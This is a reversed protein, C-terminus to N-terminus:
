RLLNRILAVVVPVAVGNGIQKYAVADQKPLVFDERIGQLRACERPTLQRLGQATKISPTSFTAITPSIGLISYIKDQQRPLGSITDGYLIADTKIKYQKKTIKKLNDNYITTIAEVRSHGVALRHNAKSPKKLLLKRNKWLNSLLYKTDVIDDLIDELVLTRPMSEPFLINQSIDSRIGVFFVRKRQQPVGFDAADIVKYRVNYGCNELCTMITDVCSSGDKNLMSLLGVVNEFIFYKPQKIRLIKALELFLNDREETSDITKNNKNFWKGNRSFPQCPFGGFLVDHEPISETDITRIDGLCETKFNLEFTKAANKDIEIACVCEADPFVQEIALSFGGLGCFADVYKM